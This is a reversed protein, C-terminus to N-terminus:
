IEWSHISTQIDKSQDNYILDELPPGHCGQFGVPDGVSVRVVYTREYSVYEVGCHGVNVHRFPHSWAVLMNENYVEM